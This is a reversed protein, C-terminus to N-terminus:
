QGTKTNLLTNLLVSEGQAQWKKFDLRYSIHLFSKFFRIWAHLTSIRFQFSEIDVSKKLAMDVLNIEQPSAKCVYCLQSSKTSTAANSIKGDIMTLALYYNILIEIYGLASKFTTLDKIKNEIYQIQIEALSLLPYCM